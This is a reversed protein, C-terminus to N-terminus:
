IGKISQGFLCYRDSTPVDNRKTSVTSANLDSNLSRRVACWVNIGYLIEICQISFISVFVRLKRRGRGQRVYMSTKIMWLQDPLLNLIYSVDLYYKKKKKFILKVKLISLCYWATKLLGCLFRTEPEVM